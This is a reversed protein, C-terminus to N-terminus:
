IGITPLTIILFNLYNLQSIIFYNYSNDGSNDSSNDLTIMHYIRCAKSLNHLIM